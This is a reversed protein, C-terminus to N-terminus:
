EAKIGAEQAVKTWKDIEKAVFDPFPVTPDTAVEAGLKGFYAAAAPDALVAAVETRLRTVVAPPAKAPMSLGFWSTAEYGPVGAESVTPVDPLLASRHSSTVALARLKGSSLFPTVAALAPIVMQTQGGMTDTIAPAAGKYPVHLMKTKSQIALLAGAMHLPSGVGGSAYTISNPTRHALDLLEQLNKAPVEPYVCVVAPVTVVLSVPTFDKIPDYPMKTGIATVQAFSTDVMLLTYGDPASRAVYAAGITGSAGAKNEVVVTQGLREGLKQAMYRASLDSAGGASFPVIITVPHSPWTDAATAPLATACAIAATLASLINKM